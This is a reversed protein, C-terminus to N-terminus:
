SRRDAGSLFRFGYYKATKAVKEPVGKDPM